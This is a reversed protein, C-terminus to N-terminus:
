RAMYRGLTPAPGLYGLRSNGGAAGNRMMRFKSQGYPGAGALRRRRRMKVGGGYGLGNMYRGMGGGGFMGAGSGMQGGYNGYAGAGTGPFFGQGMGGGGLMGGSALTNTALNYLAVVIGGAAAEGGNKAGAVAEVGM